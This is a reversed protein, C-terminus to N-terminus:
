AWCLTTGGRSCARWNILFSVTEFRTCVCTRWRGSLPWWIVNGPQPQALHVRWEALVSARPGEAGQVMDRGLAPETARPGRRAEPALAGAGRSSPGTSHRKLRSSAKNRSPLSLEKRPSSVASVLQQSRTDRRLSSADGSKASQWASPGPDSAGVVVSPLRQEGDPKLQSLSGELDVSEGM